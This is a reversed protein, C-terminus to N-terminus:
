GLQGILIIAGVAMLIASFCIGILLWGNMKKKMKPVM